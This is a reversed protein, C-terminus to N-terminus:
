QNIISNIIGAIVLGLLMAIIGIATVATEIYNSRNKNKDHKNM